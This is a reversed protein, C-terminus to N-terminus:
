GGMSSVEPSSRTLTVLDKTTKGDIIDRKRYSRDGWQFPLVNRGWPFYTANRGKKFIYAFQGRSPNKKGPGAAQKIRERIVGV